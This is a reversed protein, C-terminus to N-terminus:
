IVIGEPAWNVFAVGQRLQVCQEQWEGEEKVGELCM